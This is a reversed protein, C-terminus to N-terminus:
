FETFESGLVVKLCNDKKNAFIDYGMEGQALSLRHTIISAFDYKRSQVIPILTDM